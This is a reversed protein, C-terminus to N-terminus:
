SVKKDLVNKQSKSSTEIIIKKKEFIWYRKWRLDLFNWIVKMLDKGMSPKEVIALAHGFEVIIKFDQDLFFKWHFFQEVNLLKELMIFGVSHLLPDQEIPKSHTFMVFLIFLSGEKMSLHEWSTDPQQSQIQDWMSPLLMQNYSEIQSV